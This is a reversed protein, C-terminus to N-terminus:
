QGIVKVPVRSAVSTGNGLQGFTNSGWCYVVGGSTLGCAYGGVDPDYYAGGVSVSTFTLGGAVPAPTTSSGITGGANSGWCYAQGPMAVGCAASAGGNSLVAFGIGGVVRVPASAWATSGDGLRGDGNWGWCYAAGTRTIGCADNIGVSVSSFALGGSVAVPTRSCAVYLGMDEDACTEPGTTTPSLGYSQGWGTATGIGLEGFYNFGWCYAAGATTVGCSHAYDGASISSFTLGGAVAVPTDGSCADLVCRPDAGLAGYYGFGWCYGAGGLTVGCTHWARASVSSFSLGGAVPVPTPTCGKPAGYRLSCYAVAPPQGTGLNHDEGWCYAAGGNTVACTHFEGASISAFSLGGSVPVPIVSNITTGNGLQGATNEGWCYAAGATTLGCAHRWGASVASFVLGTPAAALPIVTVPVSVTLGDITASVVVSGQGVATVRASHWEAEELSAIATNSSTWSIQFINTQRGDAIYALVFLQASTGQQLTASAPTITFRVVADPPPAVTVSAQGAIGDSTATVTCTGSGVATLVGGASITAVAPASTAWVVTKGSLENGSADKVKASFQVSNGVSMGVAQPQVVVSAVTPQAAPANGTTFAVSVDAPLADGDLDRIGQTITLEYDANPALPQGPTFTVTLHAPDDFALQGEVVTTGRRLQVSSAGLSAVDIPESFVIRLVTNLVVDRKKPPPVTRVVTPKMSVPVTVIFNQVSTARQVRVDVTDKANAILPVPDLGGDVMDVTVTQTHHRVSLTASRGDPITGPPLSVYVVRIAGAAAAGTGSSGSPNVGGPTSNAHPNSVLITSAPTPVSVPADPSGCAALWPAALLALWARLTRARLIGDFTATM